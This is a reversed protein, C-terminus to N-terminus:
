PLRLESSWEPWIAIAAVFVVLAILGVSGYEMISRRTLGVATQDGHAAAQESTTQAIGIMLYFIVLLAASVLLFPVPWYNLIWYCQVLLLAIVGSTIWLTAVRGRLLDAALLLSSPFVLAIAYLTRYRNFTVASFIAFALAYAVVALVSRAIRRARPSGAILYHQASLVILLLGFTAVLVLLYANTQLVGRFLRLFAFIAIPTLMPLSWLPLALDIQQSGLTISSHWGSRYLQPYGRTVLEVGIGTLLALVGILGWAISFTPLGAGINFILQNRNLELLFVVGLGVLVLTILPVIRDFRPGNM